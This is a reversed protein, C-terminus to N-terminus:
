QFNDKVTRQLAVLGRQIAEMEEGGDAAKPKTQQEEPPMMKTETLVPAIHDDM